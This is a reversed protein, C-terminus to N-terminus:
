IEVALTSRLFFSPLITIYTLRSRGIFDRLWIIFHEQLIVRFVLSMTYGSVCHRHSGFKALHHSKHSAEVWLTVSVKAPPFICQPVEKWLTM